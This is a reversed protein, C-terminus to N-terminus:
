GHSAFFLYWVLELGMRTDNGTPQLPKNPDTSTESLDPSTCFICFLFVFIDRLIWTTSYWVTAVYNSGVPGLGHPRSPFVLQLVASRSASYATNPVLTGGVSATNSRFESLITLAASKFSHNLRAAM